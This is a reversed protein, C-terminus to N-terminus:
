HLKYHDPAPNDAPDTPPIEAESSDPLDNDELARSRIYAYIMMGFFAVAVTLWILEDFLGLAGHALFPTM